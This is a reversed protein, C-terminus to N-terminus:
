AAFASSVLLKSAEEPHESKILEIFLDATRGPWTIWWWGAAGLVSLASTSLMLILLWRPLKM